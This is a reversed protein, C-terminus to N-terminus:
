GDVRFLYVGWGVADREWRLYRDRGARNRALIEPLDPDDPHAVAYREGAQWRLAEYRDWDDDSSVLAYHLTLGLPEGAAANDAHSRESELEADVPLPGANRRLYPEGVLVLGGPRTFGAMARLTGEHGGFVWSAGVCMALDFSAPEGRYDAGDLQLFTLDAGPVRAAAKERADRVCYPSIDIGVGSAGWREILRVLLEAKGCAVDLVRSGPALHALEVLEDVKQESLPNCLVHDRHLVDYFKWRDM